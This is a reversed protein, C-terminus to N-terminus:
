EADNEKLNEIVENLDIKEKKCIYAAVNLFVDYMDDQELLERLRAESLVAQGRRQGSVWGRRVAYAINGAVALGGAAAYLGWSM